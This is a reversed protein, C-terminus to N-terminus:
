KAFVQQSCFNELTTNKDMLSPSPKGTSILVKIEDMSIASAMGEAFCDCYAAIKNTPIGFTESITTRDVSAKICREAQSKDITYCPSIM